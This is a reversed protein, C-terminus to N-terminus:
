KVKRVAGVSTADPYQTKIIRKAESPTTSEVIPRIAARDKHTVTAQYKQTKM